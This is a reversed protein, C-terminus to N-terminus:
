RGRAASNRNVGGKRKTALAEAHREAQRNNQQQTDGSEDKQSLVATRARLAVGKQRVQQDELVRQMAPDDFRVTLRNKLAVAVVQAKFEASGIVHLKSGFKLLAMRLGAEAAEPTEKYVWVAKATDRILPTGDKLYDVSGDFRFQPVLGAFVFPTHPSSQASIGVFGCVFSQNDEHGSSGQDQYENCQVSPPFISEVMEPLSRHEREALQRTATRDVLRIQEQTALYEMRVTSLRHARERKTFTHDEYIESKRAQYAHKAKAFRERSEERARELELRREDTEESAFVEFAEWRVTEATNRDKRERVQRAYVTCLLNAAEHWPYHMEKTLFDAVGYRRAGCVIRPLGDAGGEVSYKGVDLGKRKALEQFLRNAEINRKAEQVLENKSGKEIATTEQRRRVFDTAVSSPPLVPLEM